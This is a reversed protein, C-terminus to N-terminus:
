CVDTKLCCKNVIYNLHYFDSKFNLQFLFLLGKIMKSVCVSGLIVAFFFSHLLTNNAAAGHSTQILAECFHM